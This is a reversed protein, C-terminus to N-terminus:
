DNDDSRLCSEDSDPEGDLFSIVQFPSVLEYIESLDEQTIEKLMNDADFLIQNIRQLRQKETIM